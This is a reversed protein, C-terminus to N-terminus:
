PLLAGSTARLQPRLSVATPSVGIVAIEVEHTAAIQATQTAHNRVIAAAVDGAADPNETVVAMSIVATAADRWDVTTPDLFRSNHASQLSVAFAQQGTESVPPGLIAMGLTVRFRQLEAM